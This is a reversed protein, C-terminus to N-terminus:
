EVYLIDFRRKIAEADTPNFLDDISYNSTIILNYKSANLRRTGGKVEATFPYRDAWNKIHSALLKMHDGADDILIINHNDYGDFWKNQLKVYITMGLERSMDWVMKSKGTGPPGYIWLNKDKLDGQFIEDKHAAALLDDFYARYRAYIQTERISEDGNKAASVTESWKIESMTRKRREQTEEHSVRNILCGPPVGYEYYKNGDKTVYEYCKTLRGNVKEWHARPDISICTHARSYKNLVLISHYHEKGTTPAIEKYVVFWRIIDRNHFMEEELEDSSLYEFSNHVGTWNFSRTNVLEMPLAHMKRRREGTIQPQWTNGETHYNTEISEEEVVEEEDIIPAPALPAQAPVPRDDLMEITVDPSPCRSPTIQAEQIQSSKRTNEKSLAYLQEQFILEHHVRDPDLALQEQVPIDRWEEDPISSFPPQFNSNSSMITFASFATKYNFYFKYLTIIGM